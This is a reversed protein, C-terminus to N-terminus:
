AAVMAVSESEAEPAGMSSSLPQLDAIAQMARVRAKIIERSRCSLLAACEKVSYRELVTVVFAFRERVPLGITALMLPNDTVDLRNSSQVSAARKSIVKAAESIVSWRSWAQASKAPMPKGSLCRELGALVCKEALEYDRTLLLALTYLSDIEGSFLQCFDVSNGIEGTIPNAMNM